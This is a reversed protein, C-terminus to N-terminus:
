RGQTERQIQLKLRDREQQRRGLEDRLFTSRPNKTLELQIQFIMNELDRLYRQMSELQLGAVVTEVQRHAWPRYSEIGKDVVAYVSPVAVVLAAIATLAKAKNSMDGWVDRAKQLRSRHKAAPRRM